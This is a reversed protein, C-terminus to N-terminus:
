PLKATSPTSTASGSPSIVAMMPGLPEPLVVSNRISDRRSSGSAPATYRSPCAIASREVRSTARRNAIKGWVASGGSPTV